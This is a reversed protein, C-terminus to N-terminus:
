APKPRNPGLPATPSGLRCSNTIHLAGEAKSRLEDTAAWVILLAHAV